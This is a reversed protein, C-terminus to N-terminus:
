LSRPQSGHMRTHADVHRQRREGARRVRTGEWIIAWLTSTDRAGMEQPQSQGPGAERQANLTGPM